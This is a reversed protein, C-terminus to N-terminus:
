HQDAHQWSQWLTTENQFCLSMLSSPAPLHCSSCATPCQRIGGSGRPCCGCASPAASACPSSATGTAIQRTLRWAATQTQLTFISRRGGQPKNKKGRQGKKGLHILQSAHGLCGVTSTRTGGGMPLLVMLPKSVPSAEGNLAALTFLFPFALSGSTEKKARNM